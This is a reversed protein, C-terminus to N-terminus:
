ASLIVNASPLLTLVFLQLPPPLSHLCLSLSIKGSLPLASAGMPPEEQWGLSRGRWGRQPGNQAAARTRLNALWSKQGPVPASTGLVRVAAGFPENVWLRLDSLFFFFFFLLLTPYTNM